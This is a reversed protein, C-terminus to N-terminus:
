NGKKHAGPRPLGLGRRAVQDRMVQVSGHNVCSQFAGLMNHAFLGDEINDPSTNLLQGRGGLLQAYAETSRVAHEPAWVKEAAGEYTFQGGHEEISMSRLTMLRCVQAETWMQAVVDRAVPDAHLDAAEEDQKLYNVMAENQLVSMIYRRAGVRDLNLGQQGISWGNGEEGLLCSAPVRVNDLFVENTRPEGYITNIPAAPNNQITWIPRITIGPADMPILFISLGAHRNPEVSTRAMLYLHTAVHADTTFMKQGNIVYEDGDRVAKCQIGALDAGAAPETYGQAFVVSGGISGPVYRCKQEETGAAVIAPAGTGGGGVHMGVRGFEEEVIYQDLRHGGQGGYEVPWSIGTWGRRAIEEFVAETKPGWHTTRNRDLLEAQIEEDIHERIFARVEQRLAEQQDSFAFRM